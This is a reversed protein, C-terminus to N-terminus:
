NVGEFKYILITCLEKFKPISKLKIRGYFCDQHYTQSSSKPPTLTYNTIIYFNCYSLEFYRFM